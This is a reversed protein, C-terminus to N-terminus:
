NHAAAEMQESCVSFQFYFNTKRPRCVFFPLRRKSNLLRAWRHNNTGQHKTGCWGVGSLGIYCTSGANRGLSVEVWLCEWGTVNQFSYIDGISHAEMWRWLEALFRSTTALTAPAMSTAVNGCSVRSPQNDQRSLINLLPFTRLNSRKPGVTVRVSHPPPPPHVLCWPV